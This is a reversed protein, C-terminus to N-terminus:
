KRIRINTKTWFYGLMDGSERGIEDTLIHREAQKWVM